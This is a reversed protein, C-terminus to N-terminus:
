MQFIRGVTAESNRIYSFINYNGIIKELKADLM